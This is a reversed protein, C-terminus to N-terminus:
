RAINTFNVLWNLADFIAESLVVVVLSVEDRSSLGLDLEEVGVFGALVNDLVLDEVLLLPDGVLEELVILGIGGVGADDIGLLAEGLVDHDILDYSVLVDM